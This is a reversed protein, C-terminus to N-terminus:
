SSAIEAASDCFRSLTHPGKPGETLETEVPPQTRDPVHTDSVAPRSHQAGASVLAFRGVWGSIVSGFAAGTRRRRFERTLLGAPFLVTGAAAFRRAPSQAQAATTQVAARCV